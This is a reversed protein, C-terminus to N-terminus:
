PVPRRLAFVTIGTSPIHSEEVCEFGFHEYLAVNARTVTDTYTIVKQEDAMELFPRILRSSYGKGRASALVGLNDLYFHPRDAYKKHLMDIQKTIPGARFAGIPYRTLLLPIFKGLSRISISLEGQDPTKWFAVGQLPEGVGFGRNNKISIEGYLRFFKVMTSVRTARSPLIFSVLPDEVFSLSIVQAAQEVDDLTLQRYVQATMAQITGSLLCGFRWQVAYKPYRSVVM